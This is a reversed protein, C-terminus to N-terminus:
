RSVGAAGFWQPAPVQCGTGCHVAAGVGIAFRGAHSDTRGPLDTRRGEM